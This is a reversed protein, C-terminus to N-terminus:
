PKAFTVKVAQFAEVDNSKRRIVVTRVINSTLDNGVSLFSSCAITPNAGGIVVPTGGSYVNHYDDLSPTGPLTANDIVYGTATYTGDTLNVTGSCLTVLNAADVEVALSGISVTYDPAPVSSPSSTASVSTYTAVPNATATGSNASYLLSLTFAATYTTASLKANAYFSIPAAGTPSFASASGQYANTLAFTPFALYTQDAVLETLTLACASNGKVVSLATNDMAAVGGLRLSWSGSRGLCGGGYTGNLWQLSASSLADSSWAAVKAEPTIADEADAGSCSWLVFSCSLIAVNGFIRLSTTM